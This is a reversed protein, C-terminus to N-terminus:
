LSKSAHSSRTIEMLKPPSRIHGQFAVRPFEQGLKVRPCNVNQLMFDGPCAGDRSM